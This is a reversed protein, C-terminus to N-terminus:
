GTARPREVRIPIPHAAAAAIRIASRRGGNLIALTDFVDREQVQFFELDDTNITV